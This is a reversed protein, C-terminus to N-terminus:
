SLHLCVLIFDLRVFPCVFALFAKLVGVRVPSLVPWLGSCWVPLFVPPHLTLPLYFDDFASLFCLFVGLCQFAHVSSLCALHPGAIGCLASVVVQFVFSCRLHHAPVFGRVRKDGFIMETESQIREQNTSKKKKSM